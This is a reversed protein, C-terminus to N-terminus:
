WLTEFARRRAPIEVVVLVAGGAAVRRPGLGGGGREPPAPAARDARGGVDARDRGDVPGASRDREVISGSRRRVRGPGGRCPYLSGDRRRHSRDPVPRLDAGAGAARRTVGVAATDSRASVRCYASRLRGGVRLVRQAQAPGRDPRRDDACSTATAPTAPGHRRAGGLVMSRLSVSEGSRHRGVADLGLSRSPGTV